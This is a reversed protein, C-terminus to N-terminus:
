DCNTKLDRKQLKLWSRKNPKQAKEDDKFEGKIYNINYFKAMFLYYSLLFVLNFGFISIAFFDMSAIQNFFDGLAVKLIILIAFTLAWLSIFEILKRRSVYTYENISEDIKRSDYMLLQSINLIDGGNFNYQDIIKLFVKYIDVKFYKALYVIKEDVNLHDILEVQQKLTDSFSESVSKFTSLVNKKISLTIIFNNIFTIAEKARFIVLSSEKEKKFIFMHVAIAIVFLMLALILDSTVYWFLGSIVLSILFYIILSINNKKM